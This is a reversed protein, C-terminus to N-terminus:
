TTEQSAEPAGDLSFADLASALADLMERATSYAGLEKDMLRTDDSRQSIVWGGNPMMRLILPDETSFAGIKPFHPTTM